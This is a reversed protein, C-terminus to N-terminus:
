SLWLRKKYSVSGQKCTKALGISWSFLNLFHLVAPWRLELCFAAIANSPKSEKTDLPHTTPKPTRGPHTQERISRSESQCSPLMPFWLFKGCLWFPFYLTWLLLFCIFLNNSATCWHGNNIAVPLSFWYSRESGFEKKNATPVCEVNLHLYGWDGKFLLVYHLIIGSETVGTTAM